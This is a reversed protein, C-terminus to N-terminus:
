APPQPPHDDEDLRAEAAKNQYQLAFLVGKFPRLLAAILLGCLPFWLAIHVWMPPTYAVEVVLVLPIVIFGVAFMIFVAPGDGSDEASFDAGCSACHDKITLFGSFLRGGGCAPCRGTLGAFVPNPTDTM